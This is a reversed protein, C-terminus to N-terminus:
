KVREQAAAIANSKDYVLQIRGLCCLVAGLVGVALSTPVILFGVLAGTDVHIDHHQAATNDWTVGFLVAAVFACVWLALGAAIQAGFVFQSMAQYTNSREATSFQNGHTCVTLLGGLGLGLMFGYAWESMNSAYSSAAFEESHKVIRKVINYVPYGVVLCALLRRLAGSVAIWQTAIEVCPFFLLVLCGQTCHGFSNFDATFAVSHGSCAAGGNYGCKLGFDMDAVDGGFNDACCLRLVIELTHCLGGAIILLAGIDVPAYVELIRRRVTFNCTITAVAVCPLLAGVLLWVSKMAADYVCDHNRRTNAYAYDNIQSFRSDTM